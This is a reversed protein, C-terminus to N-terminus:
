HSVNLLELNELGKYCHLTSNADLIYLNNKSVNLNKIFSYPYHDVEITTSWVVEKKKLDVIAVRSDGDSHCFLLDESIVIQNSKIRYDKEIEGNENIIDLSDLIESIDIHWEELTKMDLVFVVNKLYHNIGGREKRRRGLKYNVSYLKGQSETKLYGGFLNCKHIVSGEKIDIVCCENKNLIPDDLSIFIKDQYYKVEGLLSANKGGLIKNFNLSWVEKASDLVHCTIVNQKKHITILNGNWIKRM